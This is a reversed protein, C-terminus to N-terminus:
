QILDKIKKKQILLQHMIDGDLRSKIDVVSQKLKSLKQNLQQNDIELQANSQLLQEKEIESPLKVPLATNTDDQHSPPVTPKKTRITLPKTGDRYNLDNADNSNNSAPVEIKSPRSGTQSPTKSKPNPSQNSKKTNDNQTIEDEEEESEEPQSNDGDKSNVSPNDEEESSM